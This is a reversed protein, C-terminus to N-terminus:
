EEPRVEKGDILMQFDDVWLQGKGTLAAGIFITSTNDPLKMKVSYEAWDSTGHINFDFNHARALTTEATDTALMGLYVAGDTVNVFKMYARLELEQGTFNAPIIHGISGVTYETIEGAPQIRICVNGSKREITDIVLDYGTGWNFWGDPIVKYPTRKEFGFNFKTAHNESQGHSIAASFFLFIVIVVKYM